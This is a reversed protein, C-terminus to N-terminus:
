SRQVMDEKSIYQHYSLNYVSTIKLNRMFPFSGEWVPKLISFLYAVLSIKYKLSRVLGSGISLFRLSM